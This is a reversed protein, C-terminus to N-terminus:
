TLTLEFDSLLSVHDFYVKGILNDENWTAQLRFLDRLLRRHIAFIPLMTSFITKVELTNLIRGGPQDENECPQKFIQEFLM